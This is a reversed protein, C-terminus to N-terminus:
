AARRARQDGSRQETSRPDSVGTVGAEILYTYITMPTRGTAAALEDISAGRRYTDVLDERDISVLGAFSKPAPGYDPEAAPDNMDLGYWAFPPAWGRRHAWMRVRTNDVPTMCLRGYVEFVARRHDRHIMTFRGARIYSLVDATVSTHAAIAEISWGLAALARLERQAGIVPM